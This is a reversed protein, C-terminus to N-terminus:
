GFFIFSPNLKQWEEKVVVRENYIGDEPWNAESLQVTKDPFVAEVFAVHGREGDKWEMVSRPRPENSVETDSMHETITSWTGPTRPRVHSWALVFGHRRLKYAVYEEAQLPFEGEGYSFEDEIMARLRETNPDHANNEEGITFKPYVYAARDALDTLEMYGETGKHFVRVWGDNTHLAVLMSGYPVHEIVNDVGTKGSSRLPAGGAACYVVTNKQPTTLVPEFVGELHAPPLPKESVSKPSEIAMREKRPAMFIVGSSANKTGFLAKVAFTFLDEIVAIMLPM